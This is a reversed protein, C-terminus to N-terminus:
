KDELIMKKVCKGKNKDFKFGPPCKRKVNSSIHFAGVKENIDKAYNYLEKLEKKSQPIIKGFQKDKRLATKIPYVGVLKAKSLLSKDIYIENGFGRSVQKLKSPDIDSLDFLAAYPRSIGYGSKNYYDHWADIDSTVMLDGVATTGSAMSSMDRPGMKPDVKFKPNDTLHWFYGHNIYISYFKNFQDFTDSQKAVKVLASLPFKNYKKQENIYQKFRGVKEQVSWHKFTYMVALTSKKREYKYGQTKEIKKALLDYLKVRSKEETDATFRFKNPLTKLIFNKFVRELAAFLELSAGKRKGVQYARKESDEFIVEWLDATRFYHAIFKFRLGDELTIYQVYERDSVKAPSIETNKKMALENVYQKFRM